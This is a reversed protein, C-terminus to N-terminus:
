QEIKEVTPASAKPVEVPTPPMIEEAPASTPDASEIIEGGEDGDAASKKEEKKETKDEEVTVDKQLPADPFLYDGLVDLDDYESNSTQVENPDDSVTQKKGKAGCHALMLFIIVVFVGGAVKALTSHWFGNWKFKKKEM